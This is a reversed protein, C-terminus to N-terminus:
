FMSVHNCCHRSCLSERSRLDAISWTLAAPETIKHIPFYYGDLLWRTTISCQQEVTCDICLLWLMAVAEHSNIIYMSAM